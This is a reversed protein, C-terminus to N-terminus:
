NKLNEMLEEYTKKLKEWFAKREYRLVISDRTNMKLDNLLTRNEILKLMAREVADIDKVPIILGNEGDNILENCGNIDSVIAPLGMALAQMVVNPFGERYSPFVLIDSLALYIRVDVQYGVAFIKANRDISMRTAESVPDLDDEFPGVLLLSCDTKQEQLKEFAAVLENIGKDKVIRGVFVFVTDGEPIGIEEKKQTIALESFHTRSFYSTDIGNSSGQGLVKLKSPQCFKEQLIIEYLGKSNPYVQTAYKYTRKEVANLIKRKIGTSELLPLGAVTHLRIPVRAMSAAMMGVIGAKPTHSHVILPKYRKLYRYLKYVCILDRIPTIKRTLPLHFTKVGERKGYNNLKDENSSIATVDYYKSMYGLQGKLLTELSM